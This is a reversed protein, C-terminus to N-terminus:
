TVQNWKMNAKAKLFNYDEEFDFSRGYSPDVISQQINEGKYEWHWWEDLNINDRLTLPNYWGYTPGNEFFWKYVPHRYIVERINKIKRYKTMLGWWMDVALGWGHNSTAQFYEGNIGKPVYNHGQQKNGVYWRGGAGSGYKQKLAIQTNYTRYGDTFVINQKGRFSSKNYADLMRDFSDAAEEVLMASGKNLNKSLHRSTKLASLPIRGNEYAGKIPKKLVVPGEEEYSVFESPPAGGRDSYDSIVNNEREKTIYSDKYTYTLDNEKTTSKWKDGKVKDNIREQNKISKNDTIFVHESVFNSRLTYYENLVKIMDPEPIVPAGSNGKYPKFLIQVLDDFWSLWHTGLMAEQTSDPSGLTLISDNDRLNLSIDGKDNFSINSLEFDIVAKKDDKYIQLADDFHIASFNSYEESNLEELKKQLNINYHEGNTYFPRYHDGDEFRVNVIQGIEPSKFTKGNPDKLPSAWPIDENKLKDYVSTVKIKVRGKKFPDNVNIVEGPIEINKLQEQTM